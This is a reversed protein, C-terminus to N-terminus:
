ASVSLDEELGGLAGGWDSNLNLTRSGHLIHPLKHMTEVPHPVGLDLSCEDSDPKKQIPGQPLSEHNIQSTLSVALRNSLHALSWFVALLLCPFISSLQM